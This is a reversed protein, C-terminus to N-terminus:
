LQQQLKNARCLDLYLQELVLQLELAQAMKQLYVQELVLVLQLV